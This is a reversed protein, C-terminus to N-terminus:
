LPAAPNENASPWASILFHISALVVGGSTFPWYIAVYMAEGLLRSKSHTRSRHLARRACDSGLHPREWCWIRFPPDTADKSCAECIHTRDIPLTRSQTRLEIPRINLPGDCLSNGCGPNLQASLLESAFHIRIAQSFPPFPESSATLPVFHAQGKM